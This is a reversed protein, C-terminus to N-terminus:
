AERVGLAILFRVPQHRRIGFSVSWLHPTNRHQFSAPAVLCQLPKSKETQITKSYAKGLTQRSRTSCANLVHYRVSMRAGFLGGTATWPWLAGNRRRIKMMKM